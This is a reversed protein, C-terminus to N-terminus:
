LQAESQRITNADIACMLSFHTSKPYFVSFHHLIQMIASPFVLKDHTAMDRYIDIFSLIFHSPFDITFGEFLSLLFRACLEIISNYHSLPHLVFTMVMNLFRLGKAFGWYLTNQHDGWSSPTECFRSSLEGISVTRLRESGPYDAFEVRPIHLVESILDLTVVIHTGRVRTIFHPISYDFRHMNSYFEQIIVSPCTVLIGCLSKWGKSYIVTPLDTSSFDSLIVQRESHIGRRSFNESFDKCAKDDHFQVHSTTSDVFPSSSSARSHLPNQSPTSKWKPAMSCSVLSLSLSLYLSHFFCTSFFWYLKIDIHYFCFQYTHM